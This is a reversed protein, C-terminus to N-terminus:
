SGDDDASGGFPSFGTEVHVDSPLDLHFLSQALEVNLKMGAFEVTRCSGDTGLYEVRVPLLTEADVWFKVDDVRKRARRKKPEMVLLHTGPMADGSPELRINYFKSLEDSGQGLGFYRFLQKSWRQINKREARKQAPYYGLYEDNAIVFQMQEPTTFEWRVADPKTMYFKGRYVVPDKLLQNVTTMKLDAQLTLISEQVRDFRELVATLEPSRESLKDAAPAAAALAVLVLATCIGAISSLFRRRAM